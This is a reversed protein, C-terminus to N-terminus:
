ELALGSPSKSGSAWALASPAWDLVSESKCEWGLALVSGSGLEWPYASRLAL